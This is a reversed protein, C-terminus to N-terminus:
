VRSEVEQIFDTLKFNIYKQSITVFPTGSGVAFSGDNYLTRSCDTLDATNAITWYDFHGYLEVEYDKPPFAYFVPCGYRIHAQSNALLAMVEVAWNSHRPGKAKVDVAAAIQGKYILLRDSEWRIPIPIKGSLRKYFSDFRAKGIISIAYERFEDIIDSSICKSRIWELDKSTYRDEVGFSRSQWGDRINIYNDFAIVAKEGFYNRLKFNKMM